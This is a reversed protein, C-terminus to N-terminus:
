HRIATWQLGRMEGARAAAEAGLLVAAHLLPDAVVVLRDVDPWRSRRSRARRAGTITCPLGIDKTGRRYRLLSSLYRWGTGSRRARCGRALRLFTAACGEGDTCVGKARAGARARAGCTMIAARAARCRALRGQDARNPSDGPVGPTGFTRERRGQPLKITTRFYWRGPRKGRQVPM